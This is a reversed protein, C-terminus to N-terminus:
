RTYTLGKRPGVMAAIQADTLGDYPPKYEPNRFQGGQREYARIPLMYM